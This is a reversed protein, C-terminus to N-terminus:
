AETLVLDLPMDFSEAEFEARACEYAIGIAVPRPEAALTRDYFGGGYGLRYNDSNFGVCPLLLAQPAIKKVQRPVMVGFADRVMEDGPKWALFDLPMDKGTVAPLALLAGRRALEEYYPRLDPESRIPWYVGLTAFRYQDWWVLLREGILDNWIRRVEAPIEQRDSLLRSRLGAKTFSQEPM